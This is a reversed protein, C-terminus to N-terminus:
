SSSSPVGHRDGLKIKDVKTDEDCLQSKHTTPDKTM